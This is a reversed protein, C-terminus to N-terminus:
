ASVEITSWTALTHGRERAMTAFTSASRIEAERWSEAVGPHIGVEFTAGPLREIVDLLEYAWSTRGGRPMFFHDTTAFGRLGRQWLPGLWYTPQAIPRGLYVDQVARVRTIGFRPLVLRLARRFPALKHLHRHSDVHTPAVGHDRVHAIQREMELAIQEQPLRGLLARRRVVGGSFFAGSEDVLAPVDGPDALPREVGDGTFTLHVGFGFRPNDRAFELALESAPMRPMITASTATGAELAEITARVTEESHGFDDANVIIRM